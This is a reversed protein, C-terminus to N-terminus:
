NFYVYVSTAWWRHVTPSGIWVHLFRVGDHNYWEHGIRTTRSRRYVSVKMRRRKTIPAMDM